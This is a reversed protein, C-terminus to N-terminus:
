RRVTIETLPGNESESAPPATSHSLIPPITTSCPPCSHARQALPTIPARRDFFMPTSAHLSPRRAMGFTRPGASVLARRACRRPEYPRFSVPGYITQLRVHQLRRALAHTWRKSVPGRISARFMARRTQLKMCPQMSFEQLESQMRQATTRSASRIREPRSPESPWFTAM